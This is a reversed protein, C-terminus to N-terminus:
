IFYPIFAFINKPYKDGYNKKMEAHKKLAWQKMQLFGCITFLIVFINLSFVSFSFWAFFEWMYNACTVLEFGEIKPPMYKKGHGKIKIDRLIMHTKLNKLEASLFFMIFFYRPISLFTLDKSYPNFLTYGCLIGFLGWYYACNKFLNQLPMTTRSFIHVFLSEAIRKGYHFITMFFYCLVHTQLKKDPNNKTYILAYRIFFIISFVLPGLYELVYVLRYNIQPGIDRLYFVSQSDGVGDYFLLCQFDDSLFSRIEINDRKTILMIGLRNRSIQKSLNLQNYILDKLDKVTKNIDVNKVKIPSDKDVMPSGEEEKNKSRRKKIQNVVNIEM